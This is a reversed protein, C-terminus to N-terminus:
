TRVLNALRAAVARASPLPDGRQEPDLQVVLSGAPDLRARESQESVLQVLPAPDFGAAGPDFALQLAGARLSLETVGAQRLHTKLAALEITNQAEPPLPGFRDALEQEIAYVQQEDEARSLRAYFDLRQEMEPLYGEPLYGPVPLKIEPDPGSQDAQGRIEMVARELLRNYLDFGVAKIHGSQARGLLNGAGRIELDRSAIQYGDGVESHDALAELRKRADATVADLGPVLFYAYAREASRGVRGRIQYLQALGFMDARNVIVTNATPIDLGSEIISTSLLVDVRHAVFATMVRELKREGMQGHAVALRAEPVERELFRQMAELSRVANHVFFVQGGRARERRIAEQIVRSSFRTIFTRIGRRGPPPTRIVSIDRLGHLAMQLTRPLPTATMTLVDVESRLRKLQEKHRVGFRHEEDIILLGLDPPRVDDALLRHTGILVDLRGANLAAILEAQERRSALRSLMGVRIAFAALRDRFTALHQLGLVTTPVLVLTQRGSLATLTAARIAVETKGFGVDGCVLRDMCRPREMDRLVETIAQQQDRTEEYPFSAELAAYTEDPKAAARGQRSRRQADLRVLEDAMELLSQHIRQKTREWTKGGLKTLPPASDEPGTYREIRSMRTVPLYLKDGDRYVLHLFDAESGGVQLKVLGEFRGIGFDLHVVLEGPKLSLAQRGPPERRARGASRGFVAADPLLAVREVPCVFGAPLEGPAIRAYLNPTHQQLWHLDFPEAELRVALGRDQLMRQLQRGRGPRAAAIVTRTGRQHWDKLRASLPALPDQEARAERIQQRLPGIDQCDLAVPETTHEAAGVTIGPRDQLRVGLEQPDLLLREPPFVLEGNDRAEAHAAVVRQWGRDAAAALEGPDDLLLRTGTPLYEFLSSLEPHFAPLLAEIGFYRLGEKLNRRHALLKHSAADLAAGLADVEALARETSAPDQIIESVPGLYLSELPDATRQTDPDFTRMAEIEDGFWELRVPRPLLPSFVDLIFGRSAFTGPQEVLPANLYGARVLWRALESQDLTQGTLVLRSASDLSARDIVRRMLAPVSAVILAPSEGQLLRFLLAQREGTAERDPSLDDYPSLQHLPFASWASAFPDTREPPDAGLYFRCAAQAQEARPEDAVLWLLPGGPAAPGTALRAALWPRAASVVGAVPVRHERGLRDLLQQFPHAM